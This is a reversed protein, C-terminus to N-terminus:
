FPSEGGPVLRFAYAAALVAYCVALLRVARGFRDRGDTGAARTMAEGCAAGVFAPTLLSLVHVGVQQSCIAAGVLAVATGALAAATLREVATRGSAQGHM